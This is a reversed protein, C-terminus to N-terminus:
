NSFFFCSGTRATIEEAAEGDFSVTSDTDNIFLTFTVPSTDMPPVSNEAATETEDSMEASDSVTESVNAASDEDPATQDIVSCGCLQVALAASVALSLFKKM